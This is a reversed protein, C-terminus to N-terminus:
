KSYAYKEDGLNLIENLEEIKHMEETKLVTNKIKFVGNQVEDLGIIIIVPCNMRETLKFQPKLNNSVYDMEVSLGHNRIFSALRLAELKTEEGINMVVVDARVSSRNFLHLEDLVLMLREVGTGFGIAGTEPGDFAKALGNYRGGALLAMGHIPSNVDDYIFEFVTHNYYDLGRVLNPDIEYKVGLADLTTLVKNFYENDEDSIYDTIKPANKMIQTEKDVKCDLIRLPNKELRMKCDDCMSDIHISFYDKLAKEYVSRGEKSGITNILVKVNKIGLERLISYGMYIVDADLYASGNGLAEVGFQTFARYRGAQPRECRFMQEFYFLKKLGPEVYMKNEVYARSVGATGEPRLTLSNKSRDIFTYMEKNVIDTGEGVGRAFVETQEFVPTQIEEYCFAKSVKRVVQEIYRYKDMEYGFYDLTGKIKSVKM